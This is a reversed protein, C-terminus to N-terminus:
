RNKIASLPLLACNHSQVSFCKDVYINIGYLCNIYVYSYPVIFGFSLLCFEHGMLASCAM